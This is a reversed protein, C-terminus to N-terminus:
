ASENLASKRYLLRDVIKKLALMIRVRMNERYLVSWQLVRGQKALSRKYQSDGALFDYEKMGCELYYQIAITHALLGPKMKPDSYFNFGSQFFYVKGNRVFNYLYGIPLSGSAIKLLDVHGAAFLYPILRTHFKNIVQSEFAGVDGKSARRLNHLIGLQNLYALAAQTTEARDITITGFQEVYHRRCRKLQSRTNASLTKEFSAGNLADLDIYAAAEIKNKLHASPVLNCLAHLVGGPEYGSFYLRDWAQLNLLQTLDQAIEQRYQEVFLVDNFEALPTRDRAEGTANFYVSRLSFLWKRKTHTLLLCGGVIEDGVHWCVWQGAFDHAYTDLWSQMWEATLFISTRAAKGLLSSWWIPVTRSEALNKLTRELM